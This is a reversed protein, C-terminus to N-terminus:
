DDDPDDAVLVAPGLYHALDLALTVALRRSSPPYGLLDTARAVRQLVTNRHTHLRQATRPANEAEDLYARLTARLREERDGRSALPGLTSAVFRAAAGGRSALLVPEVDSAYVVQEGATHGGVMESVELAALHSARFGALGRLTPGVAVRVEGFSRSLVSRALNPAPIQEGPLWAWLTRAGAAITLAPRSGFAHTLRTVADELVGDGGLSDLWLVMAAHRNALQYGLRASAIQEEIPAGDIILRVTEARRAPAGGLMEERVRQAEDLLAALVTDVYNFLIDAFEDFLVILDGGDPALEYAIKMFRQWVVNQGRRYAHFIVDIEIGRRVVTRIVDFAEPPPTSLASRDGSLVASLVREVNARNSAMMERAIARDASLGPAIQVESSNMAEVLGGADALMREAVRDM